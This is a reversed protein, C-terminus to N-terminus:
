ICESFSKFCIKLLETVSGRPFKKEQVSKSFRNPGLRQAVGPVRASSPVRARRDPM